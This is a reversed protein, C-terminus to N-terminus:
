PKQNKKQTKQMQELDEAKIEKAEDLEEQKLKQATETEIIEDGRSRKGDEAIGISRGETEKKTDVLYIKGKTSRIRSKNSWKTDTLTEAEAEAYIRM